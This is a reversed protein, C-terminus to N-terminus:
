VDIIMFIIACCYVHRFLSFPSFPSMPAAGHLFRFLPLPPLLIDAAAFYHRLLFFMPLSSLSTIAVAARPM